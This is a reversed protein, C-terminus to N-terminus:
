QSLEQVCHVFADGREEYGSFMDFSACAPSLLVKDGVSVMKAAQKVAAAMDDVIVSTVLQPVIEAIKAADKGFLVVAKVSQQLV